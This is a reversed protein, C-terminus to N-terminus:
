VKRRKENVRGESVNPILQLFRNLPESDFKGVYERISFEEKFIVDFPLALVNRTKFLRKWKILCRDNEWSDDTVSITHNTNDLEEPFRM